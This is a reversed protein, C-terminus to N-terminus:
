DGKLQELGCLTEAISAAENLAPVIISVRMFTTRWWARTAPGALAIHQQLVLLDDPSYSRLTAGSEAISFVHERLRNIMAQRAELLVGPFGDLLGHPHHWLGLPRVRWRRHAWSRM